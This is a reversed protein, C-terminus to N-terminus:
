EETVGLRVRLSDRQEMFKQAMERYRDRDQTVANLENQTKITQKRLKRNVEHLHDCEIELDRVYDNYFEVKAKQIEALLLLKLGPHLM